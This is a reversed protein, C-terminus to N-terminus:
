YKEGNNTKTSFTHPLIIGSTMTKVGRRRVTRPKVMAEIRTITPMKKIRYTTTNPPSCIEIIHYITSVPPLCAPGRLM